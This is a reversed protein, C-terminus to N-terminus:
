SSASTAPGSMPCTNRRSSRSATCRRLCKWLSSMNRDDPKVHFVGAGGNGYLPKLIMDGVEARFANITAPDRSILTKPM